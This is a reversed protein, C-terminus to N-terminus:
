EKAKAILWLLMLPVWSLLLRGKFDIMRELCWGSEQLGKLSEM